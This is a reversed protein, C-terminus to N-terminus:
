LQALRADVATIIDERKAEDPVQVGVRQAYARWEEKSANNNPRDKAAERLGADVDPDAPEPEGREQATLERIAGGKLAAEASDGELEVVSGARHLISREPKDPAGPNPLSLAHVAIYKTM